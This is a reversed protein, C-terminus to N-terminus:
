MRHSHTEKPGLLTDAKYYLFPSELGPRWLLILVKPSHMYSNFIKFNLFFLFNFLFFFM